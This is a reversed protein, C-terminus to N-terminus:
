QMIRKGKEHRSKQKNSQYINLALQMENAIQM